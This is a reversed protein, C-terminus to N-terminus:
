TTTPLLGLGVALQYLGVTFLGVFLFLVWLLSMTQGPETRNRNQWGIVGMWGLVGVYSIISLGVFTCSARYYKEGMVRLVIGAIMAGFILCYLLCLMLGFHIKRGASWSDALRAKVRPWELFLTLLLGLLTILFAALELTM